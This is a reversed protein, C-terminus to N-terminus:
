LFCKYLSFLIFCWREFRSLVRALVLSIEKWSPTATLGSRWSGDVEWRSMGELCFRVLCCCLDVRSLSGEGRCRLREGGSSNGSGTSPDSPTRICPAWSVKEGRWPGAFSSRRRCPPNHISSLLTAGWATALHAKHQSGCSTFPLTNTTCHPVNITWVDFGAFRLIQDALSPITPVLFGPHLSKNYQTLSACMISADALARYAYDSRAFCHQDVGACFAHVATSIWCGLRFSNPGIQYRCGFSPNRLFLKMISPVHRAPDVWWIWEAVISDSMWDSFQPFEGCYAKSSWWIWKYFMMFEAGLHFKSALFSVRGPWRTQRGCCPWRQTGWSDEAQGGGVQGAETCSIPWTTCRSSRAPINPDWNPSAAKWPEATCGKRRAARSPTSLHHFMLLAGAWAGHTM